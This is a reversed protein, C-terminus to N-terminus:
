IHGGRTQAAVEGSTALVRQRLNRVLTLVARTVEQELDEPDHKAGESIGDISKQLDSFDAGLARLYAKLTPLTPLNRGREYASAMARTIGAKAAVQNQKL